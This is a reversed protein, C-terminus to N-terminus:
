ASPSRPRPPSSIYSRGPRDTVGTVWWAWLRPGLLLTIGAFAFGAIVDIVYHYRLYVTSFILLIDIPLYIWFLPRRYRFAFWLSILTMQTHGSPFCDMKTGEVVNLIHIVSGSVGGGELPIHQLSALTFRPGITPMTIYGVFSLYYGLLLTSITVSFEEEKGWFYLIVILIVPIFYYSAYALALINTLWPVFLRELWITPHVGFFFLDIKMLLTDVDPRLYPIIGGLLEYIVIVFFVPSFNCLLRIGRRKGWRRRSAAVAFALLVLPIFRVLLKWGQPFRPYFLIILLIIMGLFIITIGELPHFRRL